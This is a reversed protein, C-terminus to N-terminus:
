AQIATEEASYTIQLAAILGGTAGFVIPFAIGVIFPLSPSATTGSFMEGISLYAQSAVFIFVYGPLITMGEAIGSTVRPEEYYKPITFLSVAFGAIVLVAPPVVYLLPTLGDGGIVNTSLAAPETSIHIEGFHMNYYVWGVLQLPSPDLFSIPDGDWFRDAIIGEVLQIGESGLISFTILYGLIWACIGTGTGWLLSTYGDPAAVANRAIAVVILLLGVTSILISLGLVVLTATVVGVLLAAIVFLGVPVLAWGIGPIIPYAVRRKKGWRYGLYGAGFVVLLLGVFALIVYLM